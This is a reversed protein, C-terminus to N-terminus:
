KDNGKGPKDKGRGGAKDGRSEGKKDAKTVSTPVAARSLASIAPPIAAM